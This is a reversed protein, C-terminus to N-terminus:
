FDPMINLSVFMPLLCSLHLIICPILEITFAPNFLSWDFKMFVPRITREAEFVGRKFKMIGVGNSVGGESFVLLPKVKKNEQTAKQREIILQVAQDRQAEGKGRPMFICDLSYAISSFLPLEKFGWASAYSPELYKYVILADIWSVHNAVYASLTTDTKYGNGLYESYDFDVKTKSCIVGCLTLLLRTGIRCLQVIAWKRCGTLPRKQFNHCMCLTPILVAGILLTSVLLTLRLPLLIMAGPYFKWRAWRHVDNRRALPWAGDRMEDLKRYRRTKFFAYELSLIGSIVSVSLIIGITQNQFM